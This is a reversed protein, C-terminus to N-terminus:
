LEHRGPLRAPAGAPAVGRRRRTAVLSATRERREEDRAAQARAIIGDLQEARKRGTHHTLVIFRARRAMAGIAAPTMTTLVEVVDSPTEVLRLAEPVPFLREVGEWPDSLIATGCAGAEFLRVSPARGLARMDAGTLNLAFRMRSYLSPHEQPPVDEIRDVNEPWVRDDPYQAGAVVFRRDPLRRAPELLLRELLPRRDASCTGLYGLDWVVPEGTARYLEPDIMCPFASPLRAGYHDRLRDLSAGSASSLYFDFRPVLAPTLYEADGRALKTLTVPTDIDYFGVLRRADNLVFEAVSVGEPVFSGLIVVDAEAIMRGYRRRLEKLSSYFRLRCFEPDGLDRNAAHSPVDRELFTVDYGREDLAKLLARYTTAQSNDWSSSLALGLFVMAPRPRRM